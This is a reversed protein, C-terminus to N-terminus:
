EVRLDYSVKVGPETEISEALDYREHVRACACLFVCVCVCARM